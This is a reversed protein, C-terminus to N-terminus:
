PCAEAFVPTPDADRTTIARLIAGAAGDLADANLARLEIEAITSATDANRARAYAPDYHDAMLERVLDAHAGSRVYGQWREIAARGCLVKLGELLAITRADDRLLHGYTRLTYDVRVELSAAVRVMPAADMAALVTPPLTRDGIRPSEAELVVPQRPDVGKLAEFLHSEFMKQAPQPADPDAGFISGRHRALGELDVVQAGRAALHELIETKATGTNGNLLVAHFWPRGSYLQENVHRRYHKYGGKVTTVSWGIQGLIIALAGSRQGGRWCYVCPSYDKPKDAFHRQLHRAINASILGAGIKKAEFPNVQKYITGVRAREADDLVPLNIAGPVHDEAFEAPSRVDIVEDFASFDLDETQTIPAAM